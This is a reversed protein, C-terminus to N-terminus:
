GKERERERERVRKTVHAKWNGKSDQRTIAKRLPTIVLALRELGRIVGHKHSLFFFYDDADFAGREM